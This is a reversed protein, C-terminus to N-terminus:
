KVEGILDNYYKDSEKLLYNYIKEIKLLYKTKFPKGKNYKKFLKRAGSQGYQYSITALELSNLDGKNKQKGYYDKLYRLYKASLGINMKFDWLLTEKSIKYGMLWSATKPQIAMYGVSLGDDHLPINIYDSEARMMTWMWEPSLNFSM